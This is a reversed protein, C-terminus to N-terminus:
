SLFLFLIKFYLDDVKILDQQSFFNDEYTIKTRYGNELTDLKERLGAYNVIADLDSFHVFGLKGYILNFEFTEHYFIKIEDADLIGVSRRLSEEELNRVDQNDYKITGSFYNNLKLM